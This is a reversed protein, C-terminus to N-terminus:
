EAGRTVSAYRPRSAGEGSPMDVGRPDSGYERSSAQVDQPQPQIVVSKLADARTGRTRSVNVLHSTPPRSAHPTFSFWTTCALFMSLEPIHSADLTPSPSQGDAPVPVTPPVARPCMSRSASPKNRNRLRLVGSEGPVHPPFPQREEGGAALM